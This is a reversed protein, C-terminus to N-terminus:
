KEDKSKQLDLYSKCGEFHPCWDLCIYEKGADMQSIFDLQDQGAQGLDREQLCFEYHCAFQGSQELLCHKGEIPKM